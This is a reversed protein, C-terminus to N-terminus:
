ERKLYSLFILLINEMEMSIYTAISLSNLEEYEKFIDYILSEGKIKHAWDARLLQALESESVIYYKEENM